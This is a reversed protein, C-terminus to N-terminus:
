HRPDSDLIERVKTLLTTPTYPKRLFHTGENLVGFRSIAEDTYGSVFLVRLEPRAKTLIAALEKGNMQPMMVDTILLSIRGSHEDCLKWGDEADKAELVRYGKYKLVQVTIDRVMPDDEVVLVTERGGAASKPSKPHQVSSSGDAPPLYIRFTTGRGIESEVWIYGNSQKVIGYVTALGLGTGKGEEKTTYFPEFIHSLTEHDMGCGTDQVELLVYPGPQTPAHNRAFAEDLVVDATRIKIKGGDLMADRANVALNMLVQEIQGPDALVPALEPQPKVELAIQEGILRGLMAQMEDIVSNLDVVEPKLVQRRSFALLQHTLAAAREGARLIQQLDKRTPDGPALRRSMFEAYGAIVTVVNNFDHAVGGALRGIAELRQSLRLREEVKSLAMEAQRLQSLDRVLVSVMASGELRARTMVLEAPFEAGDSRRATVLIRRSRVEPGSAGLWDTILARYEDRRAATFILSVLPKGVAESRSVNFATEAAPNIDAVVGSEDLLLIADPAANMITDTRDEPRHLAELDTVDRLLVLSERIGKKRFRVPMSTLLANRKGGPLDLQMECLSSTGTKFPKRSPCTECPAPQRCILHHCQTGALSAPNSGTWFRIAFARNAHVLKLSADFILLGLDAHNTIALFRLGDQELARVRRDLSRCLREYDKRSETPEPEMRKRLASSRPM